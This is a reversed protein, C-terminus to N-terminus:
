TMVYAVSAPWLKVYAVTAPAPCMTGVCLGGCARASSRRKRAFSGSQPGGGAARHIYIAAKNRLRGERQRQTSHPKRAAGLLAGSAKRHYQACHALVGYEYPVYVRSM